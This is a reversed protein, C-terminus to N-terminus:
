QNIKGISSYGHIGYKVVSIGVVKLKSDGNIAICSGETAYPLASAYDGIIHTEGEFLCIAGHGKIDLGKCLGLVDPFLGGV